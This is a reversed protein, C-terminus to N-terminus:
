EHKLKDSNKWKGEKHFYKLINVECAKRDYDFLAYENVPDIEINGEIIINKANIEPIYKQYYMVVAPHKIILSECNVQEGYVILRVNENNILQHVCNNIGPYDKAPIEYFCLQVLGCTMGVRSKDTVERIITDTIKGQLRFDFAFVVDFNSKRDNNNERNSKMPEPVPFKRKILPFEYYLHGSNNFYDLFSDRYEARAGMLHGHIGFKSDTTLSEESQLAFMLPGTKLHKVSRHGFFRKIRYLMESDAGFRVSDWYGLNTQVENRRFMLSSYNTQIYVGSNGRMFPALDNTVRILESINAMVDENELLHRVQVEIKEPHSWDDSDHCTVFAGTAERLAFNRAIYTGQNYPLRVLKIRKDRKLFGEVVKITGDTSCDDVVIIELSKWTQNLLSNLAIHVTDGANYTSVIVSVVADGPSVRSQKDAEINAYLREFVVENEEELLVVPSLDYFAFVKNLGCIRSEITDFLNGMALLLDGSPYRDLTKILVKEAEQIKDLTKYCEAKLIAVRQIRQTDSNFLTAIHLFNLCKKADEVSNKNAHWIALEWAAKQKPLFSFSNVFIDYLDQYAREVFGYRYLNTRIGTLDLGGNNNRYPKLMENELAIRDPGPHIKLFKPAIYQNVDSSNILKNRYFCFDTSNFNRLNKVGDILGVSLRYKWIIYPLSLGDIRIGEVIENWWAENAEIVDPHMHRRIIIGTHYFDATEALGEDYYQLVQKEILDHSKNQLRLSTELRKCMTQHGPHLNLLIHDDDHFFKVLSEKLHTSRVLINPDLWVSYAYRPFLIHPHAKLYGNKLLPNRHNFLPPLVNFIHEGEIAKNSFVVYDWDDVISEPIILNDNTGDIATYCVVKAKRHQKQANYRRVRNLLESESITYPWCKEPANTDTFGANTKTNACSGKEPKKNKAMGSGLLRKIIKFWICGNVM